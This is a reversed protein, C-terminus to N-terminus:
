TRKREPQHPFWIAPVKLNRWCLSIGMLPQVKSLGMRGCRAGSRRGLTRSGTGGSHRIRRICRYTSGHRRSPAHQRVRTDWPPCPERRVPNHPGARTATSDKANQTNSVPRLGFNVLSGRRAECGSNWKQAELHREPVPLTAPSETVSFCKFDPIPFPTSASRTLCPKRLSM